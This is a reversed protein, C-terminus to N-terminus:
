DQNGSSVVIVAAQFDDNLWKTHSWRWMDRSWVYGPILVNPKPRGLSMALTAIILDDESTASM